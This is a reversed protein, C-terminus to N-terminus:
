SHLWDLSVTNVTRKGSRLYFLAPNVLRYEVPTSALTVKGLPSLAKGQSVGRINLACKQGETSWRHCQLCALNMPLCHNSLM